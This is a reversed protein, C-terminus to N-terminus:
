GEGVPEGIAGPERARPLVHRDMQADRLLSVALAPRSRELPVREIRQLPVRAPQEGLAETRQRQEELRARFAARELDGLYPCGAEAHRQRGEEGRADVRAAVVVVAANAEPNADTVREDPQEDRVSAEHAACATM